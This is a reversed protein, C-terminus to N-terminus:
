WFIYHVLLQARFFREAIPHEANSKTLDKIANQYARRYKKPLRNFLRSQVVIRQGSPTKRKLGESILEFTEWDCNLLPRHHELLGSIISYGSLENNTAAASNYLNNMAFERLVELVAFHPSSKNSLLPAAIGNLVLLHEDVYKDAAYNALTTTLGARFNTFSKM